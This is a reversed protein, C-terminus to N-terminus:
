VGYIMNNRSSYIMFDQLLTNYENIWSVANGDNALKYSQAMLYAAALSIYAYPLKVTLTAYNSTTAMDPIYGYYIDLIGDDCNTTVADGTIAYYYSSNLTSLIDLNGRLLEIGDSTYVRKILQPNVTTTIAGNSVTGFGKRLDIVIDSYIRNTLENIWLLYNDVSISQSLDADAIANDIIAKVTIGSDYIM